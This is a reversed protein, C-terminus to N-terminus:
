SDGKAMWDELFRRLTTAEAKQKPSLDKEFAIDVDWHPIHDHDWWDPDTRGGLPMIFVNDSVDNRGSEFTIGFAIKNLHRYKVLSLNPLFPPFMVDMGNIIPKECETCDDYCPCYECSLDYVTAQLLVKGPGLECHGLADERFADTARLISRKVISYRTTYTEHSFDYEEWFGDITALATEYSNCLYREEPADQDTICLEYVEGASHQKFRLFATEMFNVCLTAHDSVAPLFEAIQKMLQLREQYEPVAHWVLTLLEEGSFIHGTEEIYKKLSESWFHSVIQQQITIADM